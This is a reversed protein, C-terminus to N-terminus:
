SIFNTDVDGVEKIRPMQGPLHFMVGEGRGRSKRVHDDFRDRTDAQEVPEVM